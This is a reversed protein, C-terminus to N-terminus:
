IEKELLAAIEKASLVKGYCLVKEHYVLAPTTMVGYAAIKTFDKVHDIPIEQKLEKLAERTNAELENCKACGSGLIKISEKESSVDEAIMESVCAKKDGCSCEKKKGFLRM